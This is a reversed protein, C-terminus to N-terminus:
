GLEIRALDGETIAKAKHMAQVLAAPNVGMISAAQMLQRTSAVCVATDLPLPNVPTSPPLPANAPASAAPAQEGQADDQKAKERKPSPKDQTM